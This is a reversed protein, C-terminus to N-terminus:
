QFWDDRIGECKFNSGQKRTGELNRCKGARIVDVQRRFQEGGAKRTL